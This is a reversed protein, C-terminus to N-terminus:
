NMPKLFVVRLSILCIMIIIRREEPNKKERWKKLENENNNNYNCLLENTNLKM